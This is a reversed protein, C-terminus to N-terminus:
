FALAIGRPGATLYPGRARLRDSRGHRDVTLGIAVALAVVGLSLAGVSVWFTVGWGYDSPYSLSGFAFAGGTFAGGGSMLFAATAWGAFAWDRESRLADREITYTPDIRPVSQAGASAPKAVLAVLLCALAIWRGM